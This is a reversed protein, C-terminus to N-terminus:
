YDSGIKLVRAISYIKCDGRGEIRIRLHDCRRPSFPLTITRTEIGPRDAIFEGKKEWRGSSDYEIFVRIRTGREVTLRIDFRSIYKKDPYQYGMLGSEGFWNVQEEPIGGSGKIEWLENETTLAYLDEGVAAFQKVGLNDERMWLGRKSDYCFLHWSGSSDKMSIYYNSGDVGAAADTYHEDGLADSVTLPASGGQYICINNNSKYYMLGNIIALSRSSGNQVGDCVIETIEHAGIGSVAVRHIRDEKFFTPYGQFNIAGTWPGDSGVSSAFPDTSLGEFRRWNKFNGLECCYIENVMENDVMGYKCGWLRNKCEIVYDMLPVNDQKLSQATHYEKTANKPVAILIDQGWGPVDVMYTIRVTNNETPAVSPYPSTSFTVIGTSSNYSWGTEFSVGDVEVKTVEVPVIRASLDNKQPAPLKYQTKGVIGNYYVTHLCSWINCSENEVGEGTDPDAEVIRVPIDPEKGWVYSAGQESSLHYNNVGNPNKKVVAVRNRKIWEGNFGSDNEFTSDLKTMVEPLLIQDGEKIEDWKKLMDEDTIGSAKDGVGVWVYYTSDTDEPTEYYPYYDCNLPQSKTFRFMKTYDEPLEWYDDPFSFNFEGCDSPDATNYYKADPFVCIYAGFPILQKMGNSLGTLTTEQDNWYLKGEDVYALYVKDLIGGPDFLNKIWNRKKRNSMLPYYMTTLNQTNYFEGDAIKLNHNYGAFTDVMERYTTDEQLYPLRPM